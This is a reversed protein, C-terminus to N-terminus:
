ADVQLADPCVIPEIIPEMTSIKNVDSSNQLLYKRFVGATPPM